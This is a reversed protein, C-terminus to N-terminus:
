KKSPSSTLFGILSYIAGIVLLGFVFNILTDSVSHSKNDIAIFDYVACAIAAIFIIWGILKAPAYFIGVRRFWPLNM